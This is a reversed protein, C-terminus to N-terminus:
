ARRASPNISREVAASPFGLAGQNSAEVFQIRFITWDIQRDANQPHAALHEALVRAKAAEEDDADLVIVGLTVPAGARDLEAEAAVLVKEIRNILDPKM